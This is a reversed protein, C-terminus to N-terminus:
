RLCVISLLVHIKEVIYSAADKLKQGYLEQRQSLTLEHYINRHFSKAIENIEEASAQSPDNLKLQVNQEELVLHNLKESSENILQILTSVDLQPGHSKQRKRYFILVNRCIIETTRISEELYISRKTGAIAFPGVTEARARDL